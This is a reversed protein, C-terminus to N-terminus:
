DSGPVLGAIRRPGLVAHAPVSQGPRLRALLRDREVPGPLTWGATHEAKFGFFRQYYDADGILMMPDSGVADAKALAAEVLMRGIGDRQRDPRVAVPGVLILPATTGDGETLQVPWCQISGVLEGEEIAALSFESIPHTGHRVRYATRQGRDAGFALDLLQEIESAAVSAIPVLTILEFVIGARHHRRAMQVARVPANLPEFMFALCFRTASEHLKEIGGPRGAGTTHSYEEDFLPDRDVPDLDVDLAAFMETGVIHPYVRLTLHGRQQEVISCQDVIGEPYAPIELRELGIRWQEASGRRLDAQDFGPKAPDLMVTELRDRHCKSVLQAGKSTARDTAFPWRDLLDRRHDIAAAAHPHREGLHQVRMQGFVHEQRSVAKRHGIDGREDRDVEADIRPKGIRAVAM